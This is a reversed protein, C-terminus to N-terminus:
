KRYKKTWCNNQVLFEETMKDLEYMKRIESIGSSYVKQYYNPTKPSIVKSNTKKLVKSPRKEGKSKLYSKVFLFTMGGFILTFIFDGIGHIDTLSVLTFLGFFAIGIVKIIRM